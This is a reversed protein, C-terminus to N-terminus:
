NSNSLMFNSNRHKLHSPMKDLAQCCLPMAIRGQAPPMMATKPEQLVTALPFHWPGNRETSCTLTIHNCILCCCAICECRSGLGGLEALHHVSFAMPDLNSIAQSGLVSCSQELAARDKGTLARM